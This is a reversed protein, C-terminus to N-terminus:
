IGTGAIVATLYQIAPAIYDDPSTDAFSLTYVVGSDFLHTAGIADRISKTEAFTKAATEWVESANSVNLEQLRKFVNEVTLKAKLGEHIAILIALQSKANLTAM